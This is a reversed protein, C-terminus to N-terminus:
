HGALIRVVEVWDVAEQTHDSFTSRNKVDFNPSLEKYVM